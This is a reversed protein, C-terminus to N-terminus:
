RSEPASLRNLDPPLSLDISPLTPDSPSNAENIPEITADSAASRTELDPPAGSISPSFAPVVVAPASGTTEEQQEAPGGDPRDGPGDDAEPQMAFLSNFDPADLISLPLAQSLAAAPTPNTSPKTQPGPEVAPSIQEAPLAEVTPDGPPTDDAMDPAAASSFSPRASMEAPSNEGQTVNSADADTPASPLPDIVNASPGTEVPQAGEEVASLSTDTDQGETDASGPDGSEIPQPAAAPSGTTVAPVPDAPSPMPEAKTRDAPAEDPVQSVDRETTPPQAAEGVRAPERANEPQPAILSLAALAAGGLVIGKILGGTFGGAM